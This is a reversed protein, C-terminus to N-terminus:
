FENLFVTGIAIFARVACPVPLTLIMTGLSAILNLIVEFHFRFPSKLKSYRARTKRIKFASVETRRPEDQDDFYDHNDPLDDRLDDPDGDDDGQARIYHIPINQADSPAANNENPANPLAEHALRRATLTKASCTCDEMSQKIIKELRKVRETLREIEAELTQMELKAKHQRERSRMAEPNESLKRKNGSM